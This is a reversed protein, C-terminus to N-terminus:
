EIYLAIMQQREELGPLEFELAQDIRDLVADDLDGPRNTAIVLM